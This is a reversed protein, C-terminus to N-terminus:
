VVNRKHGKLKIYKFLQAYIRCYLFYIHKNTIYKLFKKDIFSHIDISNQENSLFNKINEYENKNWPLEPIFFARIHSAAKNLEIVHSIEKTTDTVIQHMLSVIKNIYQHSTVNSQMVSNPNMYYAYITDPIAIYKHVKRWISLNTILDESIPINPFSYPCQNFLERKYLGGWLYPMIEYRIAAKIYNESGIIETNCIKPSEIDFCNENIFRRNCGKVIDYNGEIAKKYLKNLAHPLLYDDSDLYLIYKGEALTLGSKRAISVGENKKHIVKIRSDKKANEDCIQPSDDPSGDDILIMEWDQFDQSLVSDICRQIFNEVKYVPTIISIACSM